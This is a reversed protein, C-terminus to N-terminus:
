RTWRGSNRSSISFFSRPLSAIIRCVIEHSMQPLLSSLLGIVPENRICWAPSSCTIPQPRALALDPRTGLMQAPLGAQVLQHTAFEDGPLARGAPRLRWPSASGIVPASVLRVHVAGRIHFRHRRRRPERSAAMGATMAMRMLAFGDLFRAGRPGGRRHPLPHESSEDRRQRASAHLLAFPFALAGNRDQLEGCLAGSTCGYLKVLTQGRPPPDLFNAFM